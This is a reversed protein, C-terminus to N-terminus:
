VVLINCSIQGNTKWKQLQGRLVDVSSTLSSTSNTSLLVTAYALVCRQGNDNVVGLGLM